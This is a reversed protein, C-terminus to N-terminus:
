GGPAGVTAGHSAADGEELEGQDEGDHPQQDADGYGAKLPHGIAQGHVVCGQFQYRCMAPGPKAGDELAPHDLEGDPGIGQCDPYWARRAVQPM